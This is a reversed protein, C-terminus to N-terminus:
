LYTGVLEWLNPDMSGIKLYSIPSSLPCNTELTQQLCFAFMTAAVLELPLIFNNCITCHIYNRNMDRPETRNRPSNKNAQWEWTSINKWKKTASVSKLCPVEDHQVSFFSNFELQSQICHIIKLSSLSKFCLRRQQKLVGASGKLISVCIFSALVQISNTFSPSHAVAEWTNSNWNDYIKNDESENDWRM